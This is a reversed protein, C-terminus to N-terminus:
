FVRGNLFGDLRREVGLGLEVPLEEAADPVLEAEDLQWGLEVPATDGTGVALRDQPEGEGVGVQPGDDGGESCDAGSLGGLSGGGGCFAEGARCKREVQVSVGRGQRGGEGVEPEAGEIGVPGMVLALDAEVTDVDGLRGFLRKRWGVECAVVELAFFSGALIRGGQMVFVDFVIFVARQAAQLFGVLLDGSSRKQVDDVIGHALVEDKEAVGAEALGSEQFMESETPAIVGGCFGEREEELEAAGSGACAVVGEELKELFAGAL